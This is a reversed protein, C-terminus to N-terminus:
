RAPKAQKRGDAAHDPYLSKRDPGVRLPPPAAPGARGPKQAAAAARAGSAAQPVPAARHVATAQAKPAVRARPPLVIRQAPVSNTATAKLRPQPRAAVMGSNRNILLAGHRAGVLVQTGSAWSAAVPEGVFPLDVVTWSEPAALCDGTLVGVVGAAICKTGSSDAAVATMSGSAASDYVRTWTLGADTSRWLGNDAALLATSANVRAIHRIAGTAGPTIEDWSFGYGPTRIIKGDATGVLVAQVGNSNPALARVTLPQATLTYVPSWSTASTMKFVAWQGSSGDAGILFEGGNNTIEVGNLNGSPMDGVTTWTAGQNDSRALTPRGTDSMFVVFATNLDRWSVANVGGDARPGTLNWGSDWTAGGDTSRLVQGGRVMLVTGNGSSEIATIDSRAGSAPSGFFGGGAWHFASSGAPMRMMAGHRGVAFGESSPAAGFREDSFALRWRSVSRANTWDIPPNTWTLGSNAPYTGVFTRESNDMIVFSGDNRVGAAVHFANVGPELTWTAGGDNSIWIWNLSPPDQLAIARGRSAPDPSPGIAIDTLRVGGAQVRNWTVGGDTSRLIDGQQTAALVITQTVGAVTSERVALREVTDGSTLAATSVVAWATGGNTSLWLSSGAAVATGDPAVVVDRVSAGSAVTLMANWTAGGDDSAYIGGSVAPAVAAAVPALLRNGSPTRALGRFDLRPTPFRATWNAGYDTSELVTGYGVAVLPASGGPMVLGTLENAQPVPSRYCWGTPGGFCVGSVGVPYTDNLLTYRGSYVCHADNTPAGGPTVGPEPPGACVRVMLQAKRYGPTLVPTTYTAATAGPITRAVLSDDYTLLWQYRLDPGSANVSASATEGENGPLVQIGNIVAVDQVGLTVSVSTVSGAINSVLASFQSGNCGASIDQLNIQRGGEGVTTYAFSCTGGSYNGSSGLETSGIRWTVTPTPSGSFLLSFSCGGAPGAQGFCATPQATIVPATGAPNVTLMASAPASTGAVNSATVGVLFGNCAQAVTTLSLTAGGSSTSASGTCSGLNFTGSGVATGNLTWAYTPTPTGTATVMFTAGGGATITQALPPQTIVPAVNPPNVTLTAWDSTASGQSNTAITRIQAGDCGLTVAAMSLAASGATQTGSANFQCTGATFPTPSATATILRPEPLTSSRYWWAATPAPTGTFTVALAANGGATLTASAPQASIAPAAPTIVTLTTSASANPNIGNSVIVAVAASNCGASVATLSLTAGGNSTSASGTCSGLTFAGSGVATGNLTWAYTPTPTGTATVAFTAGGGASISQALPPQTIQPAAPEDVYLWNGNTAAVLTGDSAFVFILSRNCGLSLNSLTLTSGGNTIAASGTCTTAGSDFAFSGNGFLARQGANERYRWEYEVPSSSGARPAIVFRFTASGGEITRQDQPREIVTLGAPTVTLTASRTANPTIGNSVTVTVTASSCENRVDALTLTAGGNSFAAVTRCTGGSGPYGPVTLPGEAIAQGNFTWAYTPPPNASATVTFSVSTGGPITQSLPPQTIVPARLGVRLRALAQPSPNIGNSATVRLVANDCGITVGTLSLTSGGDSTAAVLSCTGATFPGSGVPNGNLTWAYTPAPSGSAIATFTAGGGEAIRQELPLQTFVPPATVTLTTTSTANPAIGNSATVGIAAGSCQVSPATLTLTAGGNSTAATGTCGALNFAGNSIATGNLTWVFAPTPTGTAEVGFTATGGASTTQALPPQTISPATGAPDVILAAASPASSGARNTAVVSVTSGNCGLTLGSLALRGDNNGASASLAAVGRCAGVEFPGAAIPQGNIRWGMAPFPRGSATSVFVATGGSLANQPTPATTITPLTDVSLRGGVRDSFVRNFLDNGEAVFGADHCAASINSLRLEKGGNAYAVIARCNSGAVLEVRQGASDAFPRWENSGSVYVGWTLTPAIAQGQEDVPDPRNDLGLVSTTLTVSGGETTSANPPATVQFHPTVDFRVWNSKVGEDAYADRMRYRVCIGNWNSAADCGQTAGKLSLTSGDASVSASVQCLYPLFISGAADPRAFLLRREPGPTVTEIQPLWNGAAETEACTATSSQKNRLEWSVIGQGARPVAAATFDVRGIRAPMSLQSPPQLAMTLPPVAATFTSLVASATAIQSGATARLTYAAGNDAATVPPTTLSSCSTADPLPVDNRLWQCTAPESAVVRATFTAATGIQVTQPLLGDIRVVPPLVAVGAPTSTVSGAANTVTVTYDGAQASGSAVLTLTPATAGPLNVGNRQWQYSLPASGAASVTLRATQGLGVALGTPEATLTPPVASAAAPLVTLRAATSTVSGASNTVTVSYDGALGPTISPVTLTPLNAGAIATGNLRWQYSPVLANSALTVAFSANTGAAVSADTPQQVIEPRAPPLPVGPPTATGVSVTVTRSRVRGAANVAEVKYSGAATATFGNVTYSPGSAGPIPVDNFYWQYSMPFSGRAATALALRGGPAVQQDRPQLTLVPPAVTAGVVINAVESEATGGATTYVARLQWAQGAVVSDRLVLRTAGRTDAPSGPDMLVEFGQTRADTWPLGASTRALWTVEAPTPLGEFAARVSLQSGPSLTRSAPQMTFRPTEFSTAVTVPAPLSTMCFRQSRNERRVVCATARLRAGNAWAGTRGVVREGDAFFGDVSPPLNTATAGPVSSLPSLDSFQAMGPMALEWRVEGDQFYAGFPFDFKVSGSMLGTRPSAGATLRGYLPRPQETINLPSDAFGRAIVLPTVGTPLLVSSGTVADRCRVEFDVHVASGDRVGGPPLPPVELLNGNPYAYDAVNISREVLFQQGFEPPTISRDFEETAATAQSLLLRNSGPQGAISYLLGPTMRVGVSLTSPSRCATSAVTSAAPINWGVQVRVPENADQQQRIRVDSGTPTLTPLNSNLPDMGFVAQGPVQEIVDPNFGCGVTADGEACATPVFLSFRNVKATMMGDRVTVGRVVTWDGDPDGKLLIPREGPRLFAPNFPINVTADLSFQTGHPTIAYTSGVARLAAPLPPAESADRAIALTSAAPLAGPPVVVSTGDIGQVTGGSLGITGFGAPPLPPGPPTTDPVGGGGCATLTAVSIAAAIARLARSNISQWCAHM